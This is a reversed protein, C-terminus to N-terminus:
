EVSSSTLSPVNSTSPRAAIERGSGRSGHVFWVVFFDDESGVVPVLNVHLGPRGGSVRDADDLQQMSETFVDLALFAERLGGDPAAIDYETVVVAAVSDGLALATVEGVLAAPVLHHLVHADNVVVNAFGTFRLWDEQDGVAHAGKDPLSEGHM